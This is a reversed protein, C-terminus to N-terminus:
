ETAIATVSVTDGVELGLEAARGSRLEIVQDIIVRGPGYTPCPESSCPPVEAAIAQVEGQRIFVMDLPVPVNKMWFNAPRPSSFQFLMGRDPPLEARYMLGLAQQQPTEAVELQIIEGKIEAQATIPLVQGLDSLLLQTPEEIASEATEATNAPVPEASTVPESASCSMLLFCLGCLIWRVQTM